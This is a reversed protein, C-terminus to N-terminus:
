SRARRPSVRARPPRPGLTAAACAAPRAAEFGPNSYTVPCGRLLVEESLLHHVALRNAALALRSLAPVLAACLLLLRLTLKLLVLVLYWPPSPRLGLTAVLSPDCVQRVLERLFGRSQLLCGGALWVGWPLGRVGHEIGDLASEFLKVTAQNPVFAHAKVEDYLELEGGYDDPLLGREVGILYGALRWLRHYSEAEAVCVRVGLRALAKLVGSSFLM